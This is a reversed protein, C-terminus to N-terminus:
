EPQCRPCWYTARGDVGTKRFQVPAGCTRCARGSREYVWLAKSPNLSNTTSRGRPTPFGRQPTRVNVRLLRSAVDLIRGLTEDDLRSVPAFPNVGAVFLIESKFVNGIGAVVRQNLLVDAIAEANHERARRMAEERNFSGSLLDPGLSQLDDHRALQSRTLFEAVPITFGVAIARQTEIVIRMDRAPRRWGEGPRYVQWVGNMRMHTHLILDGSFFFLLHKGRPEISEISRGAIPRDDDVRTLAPYASEFRVVRAGALAAHLQRAALFITDGEPV